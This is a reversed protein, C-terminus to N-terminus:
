LILLVIVILVAMGTLMGLGYGQLVGRQAPQVSLGLLRPIVGFFMVLGDIVLQDIVFCAYGIARLPRVVARDNFEDVYYKNELLEVAAANRRAFADAAPRNFYHFYWAVM